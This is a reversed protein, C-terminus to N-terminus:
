MMLVCSLSYFEENLAGWDSENCLVCMYAHGSNFKSPNLQKFPLFELM